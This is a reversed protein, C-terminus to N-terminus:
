LAEPIYLVIGAKYLLKYVTAEDENKDGVPFRIDEFLSKKYLKNWVVSCVNNCRMMQIVSEHGSWRGPTNDTFLEERISGHDASEYVNAFSCAVIDAHKKKLGSLM